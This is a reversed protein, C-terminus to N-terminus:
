TISRRRRLLILLLILALILAAALVLLIANGPVTVPVQASAEGAAATIVASGPLFAHVTGDDDVRAVLSKSSSWHLTPDAADVPLATATVRAQSFMPLRLSDQDLRIETVPIDQYVATLVTDRAFRLPQMPDLLTGDAEWGAFQKGAPATFGPADLEVQSGPTVSLTSAEGGGEGPELRLTCAIPCLPSATNSYHDGGEHESFLYLSRGEPLGLKDPELSLEGAAKETECLKVWYLNRGEADRVLLSLYEDDGVAAGSYSLKLADGEMSVSDLTLARSEDIVILKWNGDAPRQIPALEGIATQGVAPVFLLVKEPDINTAPRAGWNQYVLSDHIDNGQLVLGTWDPHIFSGSRFWWYAGTGDVAYATLGESGEPGIYDKAEWASLFFVREDILDVKRWYLAYDLEDEHKSM